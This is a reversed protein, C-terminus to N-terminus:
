ASLFLSYYSSFATRILMNSLLKVCLALAVALSWEFWCPMQLHTVSCNKNCCQCPAPFFSDCLFIIASPCHSPRWSSLSPPSECFSLILLLFSLSSFFYSLFIIILVGNLHNIHGSFIALQWGQAIVNLLQARYCHLSVFLFSTPIHRTWMVEAWIKTHVQSPTPLQLTPM